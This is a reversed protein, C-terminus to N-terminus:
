ALTGLPGRSISTRTILTPASKEAAGFGHRDRNTYVAFSFVIVLPTSSRFTVFSNSNGPALIVIRARISRTCFPYNTINGM